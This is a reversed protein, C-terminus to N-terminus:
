DAMENRIMAAVRGLIAANAEEPRTEFDEPAPPAAEPPFPNAETGWFTRAVWVNQAAFRGRLMRRSRTSLLGARTENLAAKHALAMQVLQVVFAHHRERRTLHPNCFRLYDLADPPLSVKHLADVHPAALSEPLPLGLAGFLDALVSERQASADFDLAHVKDFGFVDGWKELLNRYNLYPLPEEALYRTITRSERTQFDKVFQNYFSQFFADQSRLFCLIEVDFREALSAFRRPHHSLSFEETSVIATHADSAEVEEVLAQWEPVEEWRLDRGKPEKLTWSLKFHAMHIRGAQPYLIGARALAEPSRALVHQTSTTATKHTGIHLVLRKKASNTM